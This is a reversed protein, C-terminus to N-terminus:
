VNVVLVKRVNIYKVQKHHGKDAWLLCHELSVFLVCTLLVKKQKLQTTLYVRQAEPDSSEGKKSVGSDPSIKRQVSQGPFQLNKQSDLTLDFLLPSGPKSSVFVVDDEEGDGSSTDADRMEGQPHGAALPAPQAAPGKPAPTGRTEPQAQLHGQLLSKHLTQASTDNKTKTERAEWSKPHEKSLHGGKLSQSIPHQSHVIRPLPQTEKERPPESEKQLSHREGNSREQSASPERLENGRVQKSKTESLNRKHVGEVEKAASHFETKEGRQTEQVASQKEKVVLGSSLDKEM